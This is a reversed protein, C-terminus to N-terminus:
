VKPKRPFGHQRSVFELKRELIVQGHSNVRSGNLLKDVAHGLTKAIQNIFNLSFGQFIKVASFYYSLFIYTPLYLFLYICMYLQVKLFCIIFIFYKGLFAMKVAGSTEGIGRAVAAM